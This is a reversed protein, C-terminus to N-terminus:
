AAPTQTPGSAPGFPAASLPSPSRPTLDAPSTRVTWSVPSEPVVSPTTAPVETAGPAALVTSTMRGHLVLAWALCGFAVTTGLARVINWAAWRTEHFADRVTALDAIREPNGAAKIDDNLPVHVAMTIVVVVLYLGFAAVVWPLVSRDDDRLYLVGAAGTAVLAGFFTLMFLPNIIARDIAQFATVFTRDDTTHLGRMITHAYVGFVGAMLGTTITAALLSAVQVTKVSM